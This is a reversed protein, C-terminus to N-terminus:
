KTVSAQSIANGNKYKPKERIWHLIKDLREGSVATSEEKIIGEIVDKVDRSNEIWVITICFVLFREFDERLSEEM